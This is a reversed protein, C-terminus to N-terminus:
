QAANNHGSHPYRSNFCCSSLSINRIIFPFSLRCLVLSSARVAILSYFISSFHCMRKLKCNWVWAAKQTITLNPYSVDSYAPQYKKDTLHRSSAVLLRSEVFQLIITPGDPDAAAKTWLYIRGSIQLFPLPSRRHANTGQIEFERQLLLRLVLPPRPRIVARCPLIIASPLGKFTIENWTRRCGVIGYQQSSPLPHITSYLHNRLM